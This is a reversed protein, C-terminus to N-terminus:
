VFLLQDTAEARQLCGDKSSLLGLANADAPEGFGPVLGAERRLSPMPAGFWGGVLETGATGPFVLVFGHVAPVSHVVCESM